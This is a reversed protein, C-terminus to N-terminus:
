RCNRRKVLTRQAGTHVDLPSINENVGNSMTLLLHIKHPTYLAVLKFSFIYRLRIFIAASVAFQQKVLVKNIWQIRKLQPKNLMQKLQKYM